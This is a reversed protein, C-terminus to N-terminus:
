QAKAENNTAAMAGGGLVGGVIGYKRLIDILADNYIVHQDGSVGGPIGSKLLHQRTGQQSTSVMPDNLVRRWAPTEQNELAALADKGTLNKRAFAPLNGGPVVGASDLAKQVHPQEAIPKDFNLLEEPAVRLNTEYVHGGPFYQERMALAKAENTTFNMGEGRYAHGLGTGVKSMDFKEFEHPSAHYARIGGGGGAGKEPERVLPKEKTMYTADGHIPKTGGTLKTAEDRELFRGTNTVYGQVMKKHEREFQQETMGMEEILKGVSDSHLQGTYVKGDYMTAAQDIHEASKMPQVLKGGAMGLSGRPAFATGGGMTGVALPVTADAQRERMPDDRVGSPGNFAGWDFPPKESFHEITSQVLKRVGEADPASNQRIFDPSGEQPGDGFIGRKVGELAATSRQRLGEWDVSNFADIAMKGAPSHDLRQMLEDNM